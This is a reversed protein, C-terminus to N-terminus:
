YEDGQQLYSVRDSLTILTFVQPHTDHVISADNEAESVPTQSLADVHTMRTAPRYHVNFDYEQLSDFWRAIQHKSIKYENLYVLAQCDTYVTFKNELIFM